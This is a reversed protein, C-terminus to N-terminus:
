IHVHYEKSGRWVVPTAETNPIKNVSGLSTTAQRQQNQGSNGLIGTEDKRHKVSMVTSISPRNGAPFCWACNEQVGVQFLLSGAAQPLIM